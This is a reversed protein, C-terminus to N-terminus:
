MRKISLEDALRCVDVRLDEESTSFDDLGTTVAMRVCNRQDLRDADAWPAATPLLWKM